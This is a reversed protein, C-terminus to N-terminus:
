LRRALGAIISLSALREGRASEDGKAHPERTFERSEGLYLAEECALLVRPSDCWILNYIFLSQKSISTQFTNIAVTEFKATRTELVTGKAKPYRLSLDQSLPQQFEGGGPTFRWITIITVRSSTKTKCSHDTGAGTVYVWWPGKCLHIIVICNWYLTIWLSFTQIQAVFTCPYRPTLALWGQGSPYSLCPCSSLRVFLMIPNADLYISNWWWMREWGGMAVRFTKLEIGKRRLLLRSLSM